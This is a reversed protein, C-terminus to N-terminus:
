ERAVCCKRPLSSGSPAARGRVMSAPEPVALAGSEDVTTVLDSTVTSYDVYKNFATSASPASSSDRAAERRM